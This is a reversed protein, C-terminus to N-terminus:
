RVGVVEAGGEVGEGGGGLAPCAMESAGGLRERGMKRGRRTRGAGGEGVALLALDVGIKGLGEGLERWAEPFQAGGEGGEVGFAEVRGGVVEAEDDFEGRWLGGVGGGMEAQGEGV